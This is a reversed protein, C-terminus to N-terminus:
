KKKNIKVSASSYSLLENTITNLIDQKTKQPIKLDKLKNFVGQRTQFLINTPQIGKKQISKAIAWGLQQITKGKSNINKVKAWKIIKDVPPMRSNSKRGMDVWKLYDEGTITLVYKETTKILKYDISKLLKGSAVKDAIQILEKLWDVYEQGLKDLMLKMDVKKIADSFAM